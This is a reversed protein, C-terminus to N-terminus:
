SNLRIDKIHIFTCIECFMMLVDWGDMWEIIDTAVTFYVQLGQMIFVAMAAKYEVPETEPMVMRIRASVQLLRALIATCVESTAHKNWTLIVVGFGKLDSDAIAIVINM